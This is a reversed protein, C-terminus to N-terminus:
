GFLDWVGAIGLGARNHYLGLFAPEVEDGAFILRELVRDANAARALLPVAGRPDGAFVDFRRPFRRYRQASLARRIEIDLATRRFIRHAVCRQHQNVVLEGDVAGVIRARDAAEYGRAADAHVVRVDHVQVGADIDTHPDHKYLGRSRRARYGIYFGRLRRAPCGIYFRRLRRAPCGIYIGRLRRAPYGIYFRRLRRARCGIIP